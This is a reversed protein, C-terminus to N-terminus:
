IVRFTWTVTNTTTAEQREKFYRLTVTVTGQRFEEIVKGPGPKFYVRNRNNPRLGNAALDKPDVTAPDRAGELQDEPVAIGDITLRGDYGAQLDAGVSTQRPAQADAPPNLGVIGRGYDPNEGVSSSRAGWAALAVGALLLGVTLTRRLWTPWGDGTPAGPADAPAAASPDPDAM